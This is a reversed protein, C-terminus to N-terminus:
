GIAWSAHWPMTGDRHRQRDTQWLTLVYWLKRLSFVVTTSQSKNQKKWQCPVRFSAHQCLFTELHICSNLKNIAGDAYSTMMTIALSLHNKKWWSTVTQKNISFWSYKSMVCCSVAGVSICTIQTLILNKSEMFVCM